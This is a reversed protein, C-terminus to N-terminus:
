AAVGATRRAPALEDLQARLDRAEPRVPPVIDLAERLVGAAQVAQGRLCLADALAGAIRAYVPVHSDDGGCVLRQRALELEMALPLVDDGAGRPRPEPISCPAAACQARWADARERMARAAEIPISGLVLRRVEDDLEVCSAGAWRCLGHAALERPDAGGSVVAIADHTARGGLVAAAQLCLREEPSLAAVREQMTPPDTIEDVTVELDPWSPREELGTVAEEL